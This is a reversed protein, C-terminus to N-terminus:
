VTEIPSFALALAVQASYVCGALYRSDLACCLQTGAVASPTIESSNKYHLYCVYTLIIGLDIWFQHDPAANKPTPPTMKSGNQPDPRTRAGLHTNLPTRPPEQAFKLALIAGVQPGLHSWTPALVAYFDIRFDRIKQIGKSISKQHFKPPNQSSFPLM